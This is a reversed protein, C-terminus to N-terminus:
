LKMFALYGFSGLISPESSAVTRSSPTACKTSTISWGTWNRHVLNHASRCPAASGWFTRRPGSNSWRASPARTWGLQKMLVIGWFLSRVISRTSGVLCGITLAKSLANHLPKGTVKDWVITTERQNCIGIAKILAPDIHLARLKEVTREVCVVVSQLLENPDSESWGSKPTLQSVEVQHHAILQANKASFVQLHCSM